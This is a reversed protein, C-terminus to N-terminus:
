LGDDILWWVDVLCMVNWSYLARLVMSTDGMCVVDGLDFCDDMIGLGRAGCNWSIGFDVM